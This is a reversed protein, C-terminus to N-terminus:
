QTKLQKHQKIYTRSILSLGECICPLHEVSSQSVKKSKALFQSSDSYIVKLMSWSTTKSM